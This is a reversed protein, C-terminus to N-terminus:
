ATEGTQQTEWMGNMWIKVLYKDSSNWRGIFVDFDHQAPPIGRKRDREMDRKLIEDLEERSFDPQMYYDDSHLGRKIYREILEDVSINLRNSNETLQAEILEDGIITEDKM